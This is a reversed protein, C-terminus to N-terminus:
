TPEPGALVAKVWDLPAGGTRAIEEPPIGDRHLIHVIRAAPKMEGMRVWLRLDVATLPRQSPDM